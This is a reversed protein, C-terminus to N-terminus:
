LIEHMVDGCSKSVSVTHNTLLRSSVPRPLPHARAADCLSPWSHLIIDSFPNSDTLFPVIKKHKQHIHALLWLPHRKISDVVAFAIRLFITPPSSHYLLHVVSRISSPERNCSFCFCQLFPTDCVIDFVLSNMMADIVSPINLPRQCFRQAFPRRPM